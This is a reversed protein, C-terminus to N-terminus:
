DYTANIISKGRYQGQECHSCHPKVTILWIKPVSNSRYCGLKILHWVGDDIHVRPHYLGTIGPTVKIRQAEASGYAVTPDSYGVKTGAQSTPRATLSGYVIASDCRNGNPALSGKFAETVRQSAVAGTLSGVLCQGWVPYRYLNSNFFLFPPIEGNVGGWSASLSRLRGGIRCMNTRLETDPQLLAGRPRKTKSRIVPM